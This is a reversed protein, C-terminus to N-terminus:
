KSTKDTQFKINERADTIISIKYFDLKYQMIKKGRFNILGKM